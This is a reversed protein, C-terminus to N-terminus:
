KVDITFSLGGTTYATVAISEGDPADPFLATLDLVAFEGFATGPLYATKEYVVAGNEDLVVMDAHTMLYNGRYVGESEQVCVFEPAGQTYTGVTVPIYGWGTGALYADNYGLKTLLVDLPYKYDTRWSTLKLNYGQYTEYTGDAQRSDYLGDGQEHTIAYSKWLNIVGNYGRVIVAEYGLMRGHNSNKKWTDTSANYTYNLCLLYDGRYARAYYEAMGTAGGSLDIITRTDRADLGTPYKQADSEIVPYGTSLAGYTATNYANPVMHIPTEFVVGGELSYPVAAGLAWIVAGVCDNGMATIFGSVQGEKTKEGNELGVKTVYRGESDTGDMQTMFREFSGECGSYPLGVYTRGPLFVNSHVSQRNGNATYSIEESVTWRVTGMQYMKDVVAQRLQQEQQSLNAFQTTRDQWVMSIDTNQIAAKAAIGLQRSREEPFQLAVIASLGEVFDQEGPSGATGTLLDQGAIITGESKGVFIGVCSDMRPDVLTGTVTCNEITGMNVGAFFGAYDGSADLKANELHLNKVNGELCAFFGVNEGNGAITLNSIQYGNGDLSGQFDMPTWVAGGLDIDGTLVYSGGLEMQRLQEATSIEQVQSEQGPVGQTEVAAKGCGCLLLSLILLFCGIRKM